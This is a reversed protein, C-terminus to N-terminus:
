ASAARVPLANRIQREVPEGEFVAAVPAAPLDERLAAALEARDHARHVLGARALTDVNLRGHGPLPNFAVVPTGAQLAEWCTLGSANDAFVDAAALYTQVEDTWGVPLVGRRGTLEARLAVDRGCLVVVFLDRGALEAVTSSVLGAAWSGASVLAIRGTPLGLRARATAKDIRAAPAVLPPAAMAYRAGLEGLDRATAQLPAIHLGVAPHVWYPHAGPDTVVTITTADVRGAAALDGVALAALNYLSVVADPQVTAIKAEIARCMDGASWLAIRQMAAPHRQWIRMSASYAWPAHDLMAHYTSRLRAGSRGALELVDEIWCGVGEGNLRRALERAAHVHGAGM